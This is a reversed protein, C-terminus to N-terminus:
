LGVDLATSALALYRRYLANTEAQWGAPRAALRQDGGRPVEYLTRALRVVWWALMLLHYARIRQAVALEGRAACYAGILWEWRAPPVGAYAPHAILDAIEFAPDGWGSNEWDVSAWAGARRVFNRTNPDVRCLALPPAGWQPFHVEDLKQVLALLDPLREPLPICALQQEIAARGAAASDMNLVAPQRPEAARARVLTHIALYHDLLARWEAEGAPPNPSVAGDLWEQVVVPQAYRERELWLPAPALNLGAARLATLAAYERGARDRADRIAWKIALDHEADTARYILNNAGGGVPRIRWGHWEHAAPTAVALHDLLPVLEEALVM